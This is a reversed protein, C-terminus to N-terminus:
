GSYQSIIAMTEQKSLTLFEDVQFGLSQLGEAM